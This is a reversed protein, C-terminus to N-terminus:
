ETVENRVDIKGTVGVPILASRDKGLNRNRQFDYMSRIKDDVRASIVALLRQWSCSAM